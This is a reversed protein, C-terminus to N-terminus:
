DAGSCDCQLGQARQKSTIKTNELALSELHPCAAIYEAAEDGVDTNSLTLSVLSPRGEANEDDLLGHGEDM